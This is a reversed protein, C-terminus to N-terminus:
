LLPFSDFHRQAVHQTDPSYNACSFWRSWSIQTRGRRLGACVQDGMVLLECYTERRFGPFSDDCHSDDNQSRKYLKIISCLWGVNQRRGTEKWDVEARPTSCEWRHPWHDPCWYRREWAPLDNVYPNGCSKRLQVDSLESVSTDDRLLDHDIEGHVHAGLRSQKPVHQAEPYSEDHLHHGSLQSAAQVAGTPSCLASVRLWSHVSVDRCLLYSFGHSVQAPSSAESLKILKLGKSMFFRSCWM